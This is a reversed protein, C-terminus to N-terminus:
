TAPSALQQRSQGLTRQGVCKGHGSWNGTVEQELHPALYSWNQLPDLGFRERAQNYTPLGLDRGRQLWSAVYDTRSYKLPGYWYDTPPNLTTAVALCLWLLLGLQGLQWAPRTGRCHAVSFTSITEMVKGPRDWSCAQCSRQVETLLTSAPRLMYNPASPPPSPVQRGVKTGVCGWFVPDGVSTGAETCPLASRPSRGGCHQGGARCDTLEDGSPPQGRGCRGAAARHESPLHSSCTILVNLSVPCGWVGSNTDMPTCVRPVPSGPIEELSMKEM